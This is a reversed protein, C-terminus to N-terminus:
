SFWALDHWVTGSTALDHWVRGRQIEAIEMLDYLTGVSDCPSPDGKAIIEPCAM